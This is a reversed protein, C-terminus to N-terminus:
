NHNIYITGEHDNGVNLTSIDTVMDDIYKEDTAPGAYKFLMYNGAGRSVGKAVITNNGVIYKFEFTNTGANGTVYCRTNYYTATDSLDYDVSYTM